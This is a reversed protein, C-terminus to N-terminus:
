IRGTYGITITIKIDKKVDVVTSEVPKFRRGQPQPEIAIPPYGRVIDGIAIGGAKIATALFQSSPDLLSQVRWKDSDPDYGNVLYASNLNQAQTKQPPAVPKSVPKTAFQRRIRARQQLRDTADPSILSNRVNKLKELDDIGTKIPAVPRGKLTVAM